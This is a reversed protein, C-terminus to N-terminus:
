EQRPINWLWPHWIHPPHFDTGRDWFKQTGDGMSVKTGGSFIRRTQENNKCILGNKSPNTLLINVTTIIWIYTINLPNLAKSWLLNILKLLDVSSFPMILAQDQRFVTVSLTWTIIKASCGYSLEGEFLTFHQLM